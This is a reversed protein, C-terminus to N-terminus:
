TPQRRLDEAREHSPVPMEVRGLVRHLLRQEGGGDLPGFLADRLVRPGPQDPDRRPPQDVLKASLLRAPPALVRDRRHRRDVARRDGTRPLLVGAVVVVRQGQQQQAAMRLQRRGRLDREREPRDASERGGLDGAGEEYGLGGHGLADAAGLLADLGGARGEVHRRRRLQAVPQPHDQVHQVQDEVLAVGGGGARLQLAALQGALRDPQGPRDV